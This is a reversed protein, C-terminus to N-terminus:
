PSADFLRARDGRCIATDPAAKAAAEIDSRDIGSGLTLTVSWQGSGSSLDKGAVPQQDVVVGPEGGDGLRVTDLCLENTDSITGLADEFSKGKLDPMTPATSRGAFWIAGATVVLIAAAILAYRWPGGRLGLNRMDERRPNTEGATPDMASPPPAWAGM